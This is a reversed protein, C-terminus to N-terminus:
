SANLQNNPLWLWVRDGGDVVSPQRHAEHRLVAQQAEHQWYAEVIERRRSDCCCTLEIWCHVVSGLYDRCILQIEYDGDPIKARVLWEAYVESSYTLTSEATNLDVVTKSGHSDIIVFEGCGNGPKGSNVTTWEAHAWRVSGDPWRELTRVHRRTAEEPFEVSQNLELQEGSVQGRSFAVPALHFPLTGRPKVQIASKNDTTIM